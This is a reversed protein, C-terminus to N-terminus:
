PRGRRRAAAQTTGGAARRTWAHELDVLSIAPTFGRARQRLAAIRDELAGRAWLATYWRSPIGQMGARAGTDTASSFRAKRASLRM